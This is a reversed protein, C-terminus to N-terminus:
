LMSRSRFTPGGSSEAEAGRRRRSAGERAVRATIAEEAIVVPDTVGCTDAGDAVEAGGVEAGGVKGPAVVVPRGGGKGSEAAVGEADAEV